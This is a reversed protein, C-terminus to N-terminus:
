AVTTLAPWIKSDFQNAMDSKIIESIDIDSLLKMIRDKSLSTKFKLTLKLDCATKYEECDM